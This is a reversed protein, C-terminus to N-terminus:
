DEAINALRILINALFNVAMEVGFVAVGVRFLEKDYMRGANQFSVDLVVLTLMTACLFGHGWFLGTTKRRYGKQDQFKKAWLYTIAEIIIVILSVVIVTDLHVGHILFIWVSLLLRIVELWTLGIIGM